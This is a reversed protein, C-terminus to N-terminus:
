RVVETQPISCFPNRGLFQLLHHTTRLPLEGEVSQTSPLDPREADGRSASRPFLDHPNTTCTYDPFLCCLTPFGKGCNQTIMLLLPLWHLSFRWGLGWFPTSAYNYNIFCIGRNGIQSKNSTSNEAHLRSSPAINDGVAKDGETAVTAKVSVGTKCVATEGEGKGALVM